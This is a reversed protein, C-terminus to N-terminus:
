VAPRGDPVTERPGKAATLLDELLQRASSPGSVGVDGSELSVEALLRDVMRTMAAEDRLIEDAPGFSSKKGCM